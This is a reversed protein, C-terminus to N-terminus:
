PQAALAPDSARDEIETILAQEPLLETGGLM